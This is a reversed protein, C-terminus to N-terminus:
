GVMGTANITDGAKTVGGTAKAVLRVARVGQISQTQLVDSLQPGAATFVHEAHISGDSGRVTQVDCWVPVLAAPDYCVQVKVRIDTLVTAGDFTLVPFVSLAGSRGIFFSGGPQYVNQILNGAGAAGGVLSLMSGLDPFTAGM